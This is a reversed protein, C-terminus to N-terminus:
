DEKKGYKEQYLAETNMKGSTFEVVNIGKSIINKIIKSSNNENLIITFDNINRSYNNIENQDFWEIISEIDREEVVIKLYYDNLKSKEEYIIKNDQIFFINDTIKDLENLDHSSVILTKGKQALEILNERVIITSTPDLGTLPEDLLILIPDKIISMALLLRQKMGLSYKGVKKNLYSSMDFKNAITTIEKHPIHHIDCIFKLHDLGTLYNYLVENNQLYSFNSAELNNRPKNFVNLTGKQYSSIGSIINLLTTKGFGNPAVLGYIGPTDIKIEANNFVIQNKYKKTLESIEIILM